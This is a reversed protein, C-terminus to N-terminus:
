YDYTDPTWPPTLDSSSSSVQTPMGGEGLKRVVDTPPSSSQLMISTVEINILIDDRKLISSTFKSIPMNCLFYNAAVKTKIDISDDKILRILSRIAKKLQLLALRCKTWTPRRRSHVMVISFMFFYNCLTNFANTFPFLDCLPFLHCLSSILSLRTVILQIPKKKIMELLSPQLILWSVSVIIQEIILESFPQFM